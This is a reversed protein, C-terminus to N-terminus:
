WVKEIDVGRPHQCMCKTLCLRPRCKLIRRCFASKLTSGRRVPTPVNISASYFTSIDADNTHCVKIVLPQTNQTSSGIMSHFDLARHCGISMEHGHKRFVRGSGQTV